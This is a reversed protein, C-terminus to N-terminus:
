AAAISTIASASTTAANSRMIVTAGTADVKLAVKRLSDSLCKAANLGIVKDQAASASRIRRLSEDPERGSDVVASTPSYSPVSSSAASSSYRVIRITRSHPLARKFSALERHRLARDRQATWIWFRCM